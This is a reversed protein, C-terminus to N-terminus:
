ALSELKKFKWYRSSKTTRKSNNQVPGKLVHAGIDLQVLGFADASSITNSKPFPSAWIL